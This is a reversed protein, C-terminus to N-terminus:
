IPDTMTVTWFNLGEVLSNKIFKKEMAGTMAIGGLHKGSTVKMEKLSKDLAKEYKGKIKKQKLSNIGCFHCVKVASM